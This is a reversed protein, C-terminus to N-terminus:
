HYEDEIKLLLQAGSVGDGTSNISIDPESLFVKKGDSDVFIISIERSRNSAGKEVNQLLEILKTTTM